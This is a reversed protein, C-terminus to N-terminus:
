PELFQSTKGSRVFKRTFINAVAPRSGLALPAFTLAVQDRDVREARPSFGEGAGHPSAEDARISASVLIGAALPALFCRMRM